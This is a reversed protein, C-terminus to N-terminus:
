IILDLDEWSTGLIHTVIIVIEEMLPHIDPINYLLV